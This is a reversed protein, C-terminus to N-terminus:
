VRDRDEVLLLLIGQLRRGEKELLLWREAELFHPDPFIDTINHVHVSTM